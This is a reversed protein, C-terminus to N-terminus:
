GAPPHALVIVVFLVVWALLFLVMLLGYTLTQSGAQYSLKRHQEMGLLEELIQCRHYKAVKVCRMQYAWRWVCAALAVGVLTISLLTLKVGPNGADRLGSLVFGMLVASGVWTLSTITWVLNDHHQASDQTAQYEVLAAQRQESTLQDGAKITDM